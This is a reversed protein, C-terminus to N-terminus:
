VHTRVSQIKTANKKAWGAPHYLICDKRRIHFSLNIVEQSIRNHFDPFGCGCWNVELSIHKLCVSVSLCVFTHKYVRMCVRVCVFVCVPLCLRVCMIVTVPPSVIAPFLEAPLTISYSLLETTSICSMENLDWATFIFHAFLQYRCHHIFTESCFFLM